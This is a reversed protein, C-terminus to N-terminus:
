SDSSHPPHSKRRHNLTQPKAGPDYDPSRNIVLEVHNISQILAVATIKIQIGKFLYVSECEVAMIQLCRVRRFYIVEYRGYIGFGVNPRLKASM